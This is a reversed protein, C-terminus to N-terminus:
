LLGKRRANRWRDHMWLYQEPALRILSELEENIRTMFAETEEGDEMAMPAHFVMKYQGPGTRLMVAPLIPAKTKKHLVAPGLVTGAIKGFFPIFADDANQDPMIAIVEGAKLRIIIERAAKGRSLMQLGNEGRIKNVRDTIESDNADRAVASIRMGQAPLWHGMREWNGLHGTVLLIGKGDAILRDLHEKGEVVTNDLLEQTTRVPARIFDAAIYGFHRYMAKGIASREEESKEPFAIALNAFTQVRHKKDLRYLLSTLLAGRRESKAADKIQLWREGLSLLGLGLKHILPKFNM